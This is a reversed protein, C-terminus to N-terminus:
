VKRRWPPLTEPMTLATAPPIILTTGAEFVLTSCYAPNAAMIASAQKEDDYYELAILDFTDGQITIHVDAM